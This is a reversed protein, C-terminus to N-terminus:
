SDGMVGGGIPTEQNGAAFSNRKRVTVKTRLPIDGPFVEAVKDNPPVVSNWSILQRNNDIVRSHLDGFDNTAGVQESGGRALNKQIARKAELRRGKEVAREHRIFCAHAQGLTMISETQSRKALTACQWFHQPGVPSPSCAETSSFLSLRPPQDPQNRKRFNEKSPITEAHQFASSFREGDSRQEHKQGTPQKPLETRELGDESQRVQAIGLFERRQALAGRVRAQVFDNIPQVHRLFPLHRGFGRNTERLQDIPCAFRAGRQDFFRQEVIHLSRVAQAQEGFLVLSQKALSLCGNDGLSRVRARLDLDIVDHRVTQRRFHAIFQRVQLHQRLLHIAGFGIADALTLQRVRLFKECSSQKSLFREGLDLRLRPFASSLRQNKWSVRLASM